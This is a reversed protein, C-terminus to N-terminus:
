DGWTKVPMLIYCAGSDDEDALVWAAARDGFSMSVSSSEISSLVDALYQYRFGTEIPAGDYNVAISKWDPTASAVSLASDALRLQVTSEPELKLGEVLSLLQVRDFRVSRDHDPMVDRYNPYSGLLLDVSQSTAGDTIRFQNDRVAITLDNGSSEFFAMLRAVGDRPIIMHQPMDIDLRIAASNMALYHGNTAITSILDTDLEILMGRLFERPDDDAMALATKEMIKRLTRNSISLEIGPNLLVEVAGPGMTERTDPSFSLIETSRHICEDCIFTSAGAVLVNVESQPRGCLGCLKERYSETNAISMSMVRILAQEYSLVSENNAAIEDDPIVGRVTRSVYGSRVRWRVIWRTVSKGKKYGIHLADTVRVFYPKDRIDLRERDFPTNLLLPM